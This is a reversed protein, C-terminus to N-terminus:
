NLPDAMVWAYAEAPTMRREWKPTPYGHGNYSRHLYGCHAHGDRLLTACRSRSCHELNWADPICDGEFAWIPRGCEKFLHTGYWGHERARRAQEQRWALDRSTAGHPLWPRTYRPRYFRPVQAELKGVFPLVSLVAALKTFLSRRTM